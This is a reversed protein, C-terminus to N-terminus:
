RRYDAVLIDGSQPVAVALFTITSGSITYDVGVRQRIGNRFLVLSASPSPANVLTFVANTGNVTGAPTEDDVFTPGASGGAARLTPPNTSTDLTLNTSVVACTLANNAPNKVMVMPTNAPANECVLQNGKVKTEGKAHFPGLLVGLGFVAAIALKM